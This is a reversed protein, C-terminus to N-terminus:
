VSQRAPVTGEQWPQARSPEPVAGESATRGTDEPTQKPPIVTKRADEAATPHPSPLPFAPQQSM